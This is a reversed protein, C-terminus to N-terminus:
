IRNILQEFNCRELFIKMPKESTGKYWAERLKGIIWTVKRVERFDKRQM